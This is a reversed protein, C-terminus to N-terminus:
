SRGGFGRRLPGEGRFSSRSQIARAFAEQVVELALERDGTIAWAVRVFRSFRDKYVQEIETLRDDRPLAM